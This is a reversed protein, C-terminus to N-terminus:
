TQIDLSCYQTLSPVSHFNAPQESCSEILVCQEGFQFNRVPKPTQLNSSLSSDTHRVFVPFSSEPKERWWNKNNSKGRFNSWFRTSLNLFLFFNTSLRHFHNQCSILGHDLHVALCEAAYSVSSTYVDSNLRIYWSEPYGNQFGSGRVSHITDVPYLSWYTSGHHVHIWYSCTVLQFKPQMPINCIRFQSPEEPWFHQGLVCNTIDM